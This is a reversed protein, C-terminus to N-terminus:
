LSLNLRNYRFALHPFRWINGLGVAYSLCSLIFEIPNGWNNREVLNETSSNGSNSNTDNASAKERDFGPLDYSSGSAKEM